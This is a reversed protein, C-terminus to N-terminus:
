KTQKHSYFTQLTYFAKKPIGHDSILGKRNWYDQFVPHPRKPSKFDALIWPTFGKIQAHKEILKIQNEYLSQQYEESWRTEPDAHYGQLAGAGLESILVPKDFKFEFSYKPINTPSGAWYWGIYENFSMVDLYEALPDELVQVMPNDDSAHVELAASILRSPDLEKAKKALNSMFEMRPESLPTENGVSWIIISGRNKDRSIMEHLQNEANAYTQPNEWDITWYVPVESWVMLGMEEAVKIMHENHPYHALRVFNCNLKKAWGLLTYADGRTTARGEKLPNEEHICIGRLYIEEGNLLISTGETEITRFGINDTILEGDGALTVTYLKPNEPTWKLLKRVPISFEAKEDPSVELYEDIGLENLKINVSQSESGNLKVYGSITNEKEPDLQIFYDEIFTTPTEVIFVDRTIGGYNWWDTNVTPVAEKKRTNNVLLTTFNEGDKLHDTVEFNFATFGGTHTGVRQGNLYVICEYNVAGFYLFYRKNVQKKIEFPRNYWISGEYFRLEPLQSNWDAPVQLTIAPNFQYEILEDKEKQKQNAYFGSGPTSSEERPLYRYDYYGTEYPDIIYEWQGNLSIAKREAANQILPQQAMVSNACFVAFILYITRKLM